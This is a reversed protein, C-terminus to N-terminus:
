GMYREHYYDSGSVEYESVNDGKRSGSIYGNYWAEGIMEMEDDISNELMTLLGKHTLEIGNMDMYKVSNILSQLTTPKNPKDKSQTM